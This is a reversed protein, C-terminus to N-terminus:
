YEMESDTELSDSNPADMGMAIDNEADRAIAWAAAALLKQLGHERAFDFYEVADDPSMRAVMQLMVRLCEARLEAMDYRDAAEYLERVGSGAEVDARTYVFHILAKLAELGVDDIECINLQETMTRFIGAFVPSQGALLARHVPFEQADCRLVVDSFTQTDLLRQLDTRNVAADGPSRDFHFTLEVFVSCDKQLVYMSGSEDPLGEYDVLERLTTIEDDKPEHWNAMTNCGTSDIHVSNDWPREACARVRCEVSVAAATTLKEPEKPVVQAEIYIYRDNFRSWETTVILRVIWVSFPIESRGFSGVDVNFECTFHVGDAGRDDQIFRETPFNYLLNLVSRKNVPSILAVVGTPYVERGIVRAVVATLTQLDYSRAFDFYQIAEAPALRAVTERMLCLCETRLDALDYFDGAKWLDMLRGGAAVVTRTYVFQVLAKVVDAPFETIHCIGTTKEQMDTNFMAAFYPSQGALMARHVRFSQGQCELTFDSLTGCDLLGKLDARRGRVDGNPPDEYFVLQVHVFRGKRLVYQYNEDAGQDIVLSMLENTESSSSRPGEANVQVMNDWFKAAGSTTGARVTCEVSLAATATTKTPAKPQVSATISGVRYGGYGEEKERIRLTVTWVSASMQLCGAGTDVLIDATYDLGDSHLDALTFADTPIRYHLSLLPQRRHVPYAWSAM